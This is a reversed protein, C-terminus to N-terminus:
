VATWSELRGVRAWAWGLLAEYSRHQFSGLTPLQAEGGLRGERM